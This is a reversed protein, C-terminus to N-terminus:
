RILVTTGKRDYLKGDSGIARAVWVVANTAQERGNVRGDWGAGPVKTEFVLQGWRNYVRFFRLEKMGALIPKLVDNRGDGNPTFASPVYIDPQKLTKVLQTDVTTCGANTKITVLYQQDSTGTFFPTFSSPNDLNFGPTWRATDGIPRAALPSPVDDAAYLIPYRVGAQAREVKVTQTSTSRICGVSNTIQARYVGSNFVRYSPGTAGPIATGDRFWQIKDAPEVRLVASDGYGFCFNTRGLVDLRTDIPYASVIVTDSVECGGGDHRTSLIYKTTSDPSASPNSIGADSLGSSPTWSYVVGPKANGGVLVPTNCYLVDPGADAHLTLTDILRAYLTDLCGYGNYPVVEVAVQTGSPPAPDITLVQSTGLVQTFGADFWRYSQYGYPATLNVLTDDQCYTAGTFVSSCESNVDIYAYGFHRRFTCDATKFFLQITKGALNDLNISVASWSKCWVPITDTSAPSEFFGPLLSGYPTFSFSSCDIVQNDTVNTIEIQMRPQEYIQHRPDQFVVAYHYILSYEDRGPPITFEYSVGEAQGGGENNGLRISYGSGNPCVVPFGGYQDYENSNAAASYMTQRGLVPGGGPSLSFVNQGGSVFVSGTYCTWNEFTGKEFDINPPCGQASATLVSCSALLWCFFARFGPFLSVPCTQM